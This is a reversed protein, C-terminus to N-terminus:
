VYKTLIRIIKHKKKRNYIFDKNFKVKWNNMEPIYLVISNRNVQHGTINDFESLPEVLIKHLKKLIKQTSM